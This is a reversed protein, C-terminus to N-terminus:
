RPGVEAAEQTLRKAAQRDLFEQNDANWLQAKVAAETNSYLYDKAEDDEMDSLEEDDHGARPQWFSLGACAPGALCLLM